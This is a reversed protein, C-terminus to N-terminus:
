ALPIIEEQIVGGSILAQNGSIYANIETRMGFEKLYIGPEVSFCSGELFPRPDPFEISDLNVGYGHPLSDIGHGTRHILYDGYGQNRIYERCLRDAEHGEVRRLPLEQNLFAILSDRAGSVASFVGAAEHPVTKGSFFVWSIDAYIGDAGAERAWLDLQIIQDAEIRSGKGRPAYHPDASHPGAAVIPPHDTTLGRKKFENLILEQVEGEYLEAGSAIRSRMMRHSTAVIDYLHDAARRHSAIGKEDLVGKVQQILNGSPVLEIGCETLMLATGHDLYSFVPLDQSFQAALRLGKFRGLEATLEARSSYIRLTGPLSGLAGAEIAHCLKVANAAHEPLLYFWRRTTVQEPDLSLFEDCLPDRHQFGYFLWGDVDTQRVARTLSELQKNM